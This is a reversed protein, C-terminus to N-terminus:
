GRFRSADGCESRGAFFLDLRNASIKVAQSGTTAFFARWVAASVGAPPPAVGPSPTDSPATPSSACSAVVLATALV